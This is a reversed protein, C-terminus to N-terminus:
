CKLGRVGFSEVGRQAAEVFGVRAIRVELGGIGAQRSLWALQDVSLPERIPDQPETRFGRFCQAQRRAALMQAAPFDGAIGVRQCAGAVQFPALVQLLKMGAAGAFDQSFDTIGFVEDLAHLAQVQFLIKWGVGFCAYQLIREAEYKQLRLKVIQALFGSIFLDNIRQFFRPLFHGRRRM